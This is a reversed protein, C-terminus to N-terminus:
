MAIRAPVALGRLQDLAEVFGPGRCIRSGAQCGLSVADLTALGSALAVAFASNFADGAGATDVMQDDPVAM